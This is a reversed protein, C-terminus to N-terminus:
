ETVDEWSYGYARLAGMVSKPSRLEKSQYLTHIEDASLWAIEMVEKSRFNKPSHLAIANYVPMIFLNSPKNSRRLYSYDELHIICGSEEMVEREAAREFSEWANLRGAPINWGGDGDVWQNEPHQQGQWNGEQLLRMKRVDDKLKKIQVRGEHIMLFKGDHNRVLVGARFWPLGWQEITRRLEPTDEIPPLKETWNTVDRRLSQDTAFPAIVPYNKITAM